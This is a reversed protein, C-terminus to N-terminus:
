EGLLLGDVTRRVVPWDWAALAHEAAKAGHQRWLEPTATTARVREAAEEPTAVVWDAPFLTRASHPRGAVFPWDRVVPVAGSAAGEVLGIHYSERVSGSLIVGIDRLVNPVEDSHGHLTVAGSGRWRALERRFDRDYRQAARSASANFSDGILVLRYRPDASRLLRLVRLAWVPDKAIQGIGTLGLTFRAEDSKPGTCCRALDVANNVTHLRPGGDARLRPWVDTTLERMLDSVFVMDDVRSFDVLYPWYTFTEFKHLRVVVRATGPDVTTILAAAPTCWEVFVTDAWDLHPRLAAEIKRRSGARGGLRMEITRLLGRAAPGLEPDAAVDVVRLEVRPDASYRDIVPALFNDNGPHMILLRLPRDAPPPAVPFARGRPATVARVVASDDFPGLIAAPDEALPSPLRDVHVVRHFATQLATLLLKAAARTDGRRHAADARALQAACAERLARPAHGGALEARAAEILLDARSQPRRMRRGAGRLPVARLGGWAEPLVGAARRAAAALLRDATRRGRM